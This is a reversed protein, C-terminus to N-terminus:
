EDKLEEWGYKEVLELWYANKNNSLKTQNVWHYDTNIEDVSSVAYQGKADWCSQTLGYLWIVKKPADNDQEEVVFEDEGDSIYENWWGEFPELAEYDNPHEEILTGFGTYDLYSQIIHRCTEPTNGYYTAKILPDDGRFLEETKWTTLLACVEKAKEETSVWAAGYLNFFNDVPLWGLGDSYNYCVTWRGQDQDQGDVVFDPDVQFCARIIADNRQRVKDIKNM